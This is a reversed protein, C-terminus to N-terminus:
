QRLGLTDEQTAGPLWRALERRLVGPGPTMGTLPVVIEYPRSQGYGAWQWRRSWDIALTTDGPGSVELRQDDLRVPLRTRQSGRPPTPLPSFHFVALYPLLVWLGDWWLRGRALSVLVGIAAAALLGLTTRRVLRLASRRFEVTHPEDTRTM